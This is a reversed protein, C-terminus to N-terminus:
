EYAEIGNKLSFVLSNPFHDHWIKAATYSTIGKKCVIVIDNQPRKVLIEKQEPSGIWDLFKSLPIKADVSFPLEFDIDEMVSILTPKKTKLNQKLQEPTILLQPEQIECNADFYESKTFINKIEQKTIKTKLNMRFQSNDLSNLILIQNTLPTGIETIIKIVENAQMIGISGVIPNLTGVESCNPINTKPIEPFADRLNATRSDSNELVNFSAVYGDFKYLSGYVLPKGQLVCADNILYKIALSDTCDLVIDFDNITEFINVKSIAQNSFTVAVFPAIEQIHNALIEAKSEGIQATKFFVQRHLNTINITDFDVLHLGGIGSAALYVAAPNGLGGCGIILVKTDQLKQQGSEGFERLITQRQYFQEKTFNM